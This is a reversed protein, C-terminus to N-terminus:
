CQVSIIQAPAGDPITLPFQPTIIKFDSAHDGSLTPNSVILDINGYESITFSRNIAIPIDGFDLAGTDMISSRFGSQKIIEFTAVCTKIANLTVTVDPSTGVCEPAFSNSWGVFQSGTAPIATLQVKATQGTAVAVNTQAISGTGTGAVQTIVTYSPTSTPPPSSSCAQTTASAAISSSDGNANTAKITYNYTTNCTLGTHSYSTANAATTTILTGTSSEIKFGTEDTSNDTWALNIQTQSVPTATLATPANPPTALIVNIPTMHCASVPVPGTCNGVPQGTEGSMNGGWCKVSGDSSILACTHRMGASISSVGSTLSPVDAAIYHDTTTGDGLQGLFNWGWCKVGSGVLVCGHEAGVALETAGSLLVPGTTNTVVDVPMLRTTTTGDGLQGYVNSGWCKVGGTTLLACTYDMSAGLAVVGTLYVPGTTNTVVGVPNTFPSVTNSLSGNGLRGTSNWGWCKVQTNSMLACSHDNGAAIATVGSGSGLGAVDSPTTRIIVVPTSGWGVGLGGATAADGIQGNGNTGWCKVGGSVLACTHYGGVAISSVGSTLGTVDVPLLSKNTGSGATSGDGLQGYQNSGWCKVGGVTTLACTHGGGLGVAVIGSLNATGANNKVDVAAPSDTTSNNGLQGVGNGGWCKVGGSVVACGHNSMGGGSHSKTADDRGWLKGAGTLLTAASVSPLLFSFCLFLFFLYSISQLFRRSAISKTSQKLM